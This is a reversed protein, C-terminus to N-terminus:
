SLKSMPQPINAKTIHPLTKIYGYVLTRCHLTKAEIRLLYFCMM